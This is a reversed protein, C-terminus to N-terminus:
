LMGDVVVDVCSAKASVRLVNSYPVCDCGPSLHVLKRVTHTDSHTSRMNENKGVFARLCVCLMNNARAVASSPPARVIPHLENQM